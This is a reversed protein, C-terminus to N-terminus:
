FQIYSGDVKQLDVTIYNYGEACLSYLTIWICMYTTVYALNELGIIRFAM